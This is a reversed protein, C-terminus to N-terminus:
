AQPLGSLFETVAANFEDPHSIMPAHGSGEIVVSRADPIKKVMYESSGGFQRGELRGRGPESVMEPLHELM